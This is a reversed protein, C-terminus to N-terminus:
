AVLMGEVERVTADLQERVEGTLDRGGGLVGAFHKSFHALVAEYVHEGKRDQLVKPPGRARSAGGAVMHKVQQVWDRSCGVQQLREAMEAQQRVYAHADRPVAAKVARNAQRFAVRTALTACSLQALHAACKTVVLALTDSSLGLRNQRTPGQVGVTKAIALSVGEEFRQWEEKPKSVQPSLVDFRSGLVQGFAACRGPDRLAGGRGCVGVLQPTTNSRGSTYSCRCVWCATTTPGMTCVAFSV